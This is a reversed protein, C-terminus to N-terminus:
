FHFMKGLVEATMDKFNNKHNYSFIYVPTNKWAFTNQGFPGDGTSMWIFTWKEAESQMSESLCSVEFLNSLAAALM